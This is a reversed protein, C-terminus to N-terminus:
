CHNSKNNKILKVVIRILEDVERSLPEVHDTALLGSKEQIKLNRLSERLEKLVLGLKHVREAKTLSGLSEAYNLASSCSSRIIQKALYDAAYNSPRHNYLKIISAAFDELREGLDYQKSIKTM